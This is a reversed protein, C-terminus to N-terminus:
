KFVVYDSIVKIIIGIITISIGVFWLMMKQRTEVKAIRGDQEVLKNVIWLNFDKNSITSISTGNKNKIYKAIERVEKLVIEMTNQNIM